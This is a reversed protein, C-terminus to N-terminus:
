RLSVLTQLIQDQTKITQANAQYSRQATIMEVLQQTMDVNSEELAAPQLAGLIGDGPVGTTPTGSGVSSSWSNGGRPILGQPNRFNAIEVQGASKTQGNSYRATIVGNTEFQVGVLQGPPYGDQTQNTVAFPQRYQTITSMTLAIPTIALTVVGNSGTTSPVSLSPPNAAATGITWAAATTTHTGANATVPAFQPSGGDAAFQIRFSPAPSNVAPPGASYQTTQLPVGNASVYVDWVDTAQKQFYYTMSVDQGKADYVKLSTASNYTTPNLFDIAPTNATTGTVVERADLNFELATSATQTPKLGATPLRLPQATGPQIVGNADAPYGILKLKQNNVVFGNNDVKFQGNRTYSVTNNADVIQFFGPGSIALDLPNNTNTINGQTFQQAVASVRVGAGGNDTGASNLATAYIDSFEARSWKSGFTNGNAINDGIVELQRSTANLGSLGQQFGM